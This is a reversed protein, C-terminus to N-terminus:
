ADDPASLMFGAGKITHIMPAEGGADIKRRLKGIHVDVLNTEALFRYNWVDELMMARTLVQGPRRMLYELLKFERALLEIVREGRKAQRDILDLELPGVRLNTERSAAPRRLLAEIRAALESFAFPKALYDDGGAKLGRVRDDVDSLASLLMVPTAIGEARLTGLVTLGDMSPLMRDMIILDYAISRASELGKLGDERHTVFFGRESLDAVIEGATERDDEVLLIGGSSSALEQSSCSPTTNPFTPKSKTAM